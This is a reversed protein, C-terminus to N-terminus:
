TFGYDALFILAVTEEGPMLSNFIIYLVTVVTVPHQEAFKSGTFDLFQVPVVTNISFAVGCVELM